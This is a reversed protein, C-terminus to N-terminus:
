FLSLFLSYAAHFRKQPYNGCYQFLIDALIMPNKRLHDILLQFDSVQHFSVFSSSYTQSSRTLRIFSQSRLMKQTELSKTQILRSRVISLFRLEKMFKKSLSLIESSLSVQYSDHTKLSCHTSILIEQQISLQQLLNKENM